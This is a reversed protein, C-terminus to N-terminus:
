PQCRVNIRKLLHCKDNVYYKPTHSGRDLSPPLINNHGTRLWAKLWRQNITYPIHYTIMKLIYININLVKGCFLLMDVRWGVDCIIHYDWFISGGNKARYGKGTVRAFSKLPVFRNWSM